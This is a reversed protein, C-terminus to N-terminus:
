FISRKHYIPPEGGYIYNLYSVKEAPKLRLFYLQHYKDSLKRKAMEYIVQERANLDEELKSIEQDICEQDSEMLKSYYCGENEISGADYARNSSCGFFELIVFAIVIIRYIM